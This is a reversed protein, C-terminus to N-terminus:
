PMENIIHGFLHEYEYAVARLERLRYIFGSRLEVTCSIYLCLEVCARSLSLLLLHTCMKLIYLRM